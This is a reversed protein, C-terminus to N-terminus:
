NSQHTGRHCFGTFSPKLIRCFGCTRFCRVRFTWVQTFDLLSRSTLRRNMSRIAPEQVLFRREVSWWGWLKCWWVNFVRMRNWTLMPRILLSITSPRLTSHKGLDHTFLNSKASPQSNTPLDGPCLAQQISPSWLLNATTTNRSTLPRAKFSKMSLLTPNKNTGPM